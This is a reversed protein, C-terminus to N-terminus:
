RGAISDTRGSGSSVRLAGSPCLREARLAKKRADGSPDATLVVVLGNEDQDFVGPATLACMGAGICVDQDGQIEM